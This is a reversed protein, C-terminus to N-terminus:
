ESKKFISWKDEFINVINSHKVFVLKLQNDYFLTTGDNKQYEDPLKMLKDEYQRLYIALKSTNDLYEYDM